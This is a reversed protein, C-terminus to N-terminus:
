CVAAEDISKLLEPSLGDSGLDLDAVKLNERDVVRLYEMWKHSHESGQALFFPHILDCGVIWAFSPLATCHACKCM